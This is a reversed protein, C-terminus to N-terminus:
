KMNLGQAALPRKLIPTETFVSDIRPLLQGIVVVYGIYGAQKQYAIFSRRATLASIPQQFFGSQVNGVYTSYNTRNLVNFADATFSATAEIDRIM